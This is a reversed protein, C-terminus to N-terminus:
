KKRQLAIRPLDLIAKQLGDTTTINPFNCTVNEIITQAKQSEQADSISERAQQYNQINIKSFDVLKKAYAINDLLKM